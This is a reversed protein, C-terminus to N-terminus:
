KDEATEVRQQQSVSQQKKSTQDQNSGDESRKNILNNYQNVFTSPLMGPVLEKIALNVDVLESRLALCISDQRDNMEELTEASVGAIQVNRKEDQVKIEKQLRDRQSRLKRLRLTTAVSDAKSTTTQASASETWAGIAMLVVLIIYRKMVKNSIM